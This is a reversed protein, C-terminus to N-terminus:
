MRTITRMPLNIDYQRCTEVWARTAFWGKDKYEQYQAQLARCEDRELYPFLYKAGLIGMLSGIVIISIIKYM